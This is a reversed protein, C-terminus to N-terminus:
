DSKEGKNDLEQINNQIWALILPLIRGDIPQKALKKYHAASPEGDERRLIHSMDSVLHSEFPAQVIEAMLKLDEPNVQIDKSGTIALVPIRIKPLDQAPYYALFERMWKANIKAIYQVRYHNKTSKKIKDLQKQQAKAANIRFLKILWKNIGKLGKAVQLAQWKMIEEGSQAAGALLIIGAADIMEGSLKTAILAGESHGLLFIRDAKINSNTKLYNLASEADAVNDYFGTEWYNGGSTGVGRKDYRLTAVNHKALFEAIERFANLHIKKHNEDRDLQGSGPILIVAPFKGDSDPSLITGEIQVTGSTFHIDKEIM